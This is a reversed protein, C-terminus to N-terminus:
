GVFSEIVKKLYQIDEYSHNNDVEM